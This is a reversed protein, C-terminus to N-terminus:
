SRFNKGKLKLNYEAVEKLKEYETNIIKDFIISNILELDGSIMDFPDKEFDAINELKELTNQNMLHVKEVSLKPSEEVMKLMNRSFYPTSFEFDTLSPKIGIKSSFKRLLKTTM